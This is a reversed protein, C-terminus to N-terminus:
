AAVALHRLLKERLREANVPKVMFDNAGAQMCDMVIQKEGNGTLMVVPIDRGGPLSRLRRLLAAGDFDPLRYDLLILSPRRRGVADLAEAGTAVVRVEHKDRTLLRSVIKQQFADDEVLLVYSKAPAAAALEAAAEDPGGTPGSQLAKLARAVRQARVAQLVSMPLRFADFSMPWFQAYDDFHRAKCLRYAAPVDPTACLLLTRPPHSRMLGSAAGLELWHREALALDQFALLMVEPRCAEFAAMSAEAHVSLTVSVFEGRLAAQASEADDAADSAILVRAQHLTPDNM